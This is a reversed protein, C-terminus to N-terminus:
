SLNQELMDKFYNATEASFSSVFISSGVFIVEVGGEVFYKDMTLYVSACSVGKLSDVICQVGGRDVLNGNLMEINVCTNIRSGIKFEPLNSFSCDIGTLQTGALVLGMDDFKRALGEIFSLRSQLDALTNEDGVIVTNSDYDAMERVRDVSAISINYM